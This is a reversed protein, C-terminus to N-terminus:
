RWARVILNWKSATPIFAVGSAKNLFEGFQGSGFVVYINTADFSIGTGLNAAADSGGMPFILVDNQSYGGEGGADICKAQIQILQPVGGLSHALTLTGGLTITQDTSTYTSSLAPVIYMTTDVKGDGNLKVIKLADGAGASNTVGVVAAANIQNNSVALTANSMNLIGARFTLNSSLAIEDVSNTSYDNSGLTRNLIDSGTLTEDLVKGTTVCNAGLDSNAITGDTIDGSVIASVTANNIANNLHYYQVTQNTTFTVGTTVTAADGTEHAIRALTLVLGFFLIGNIIFKKM